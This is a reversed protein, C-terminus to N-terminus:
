MLPHDYPDAGEPQIAAAIRDMDIVVDNARAQQQVWTMKGSCIHGTVVCIM